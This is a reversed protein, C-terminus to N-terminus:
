KGGVMYLVISLITFIGNHLAHMFISTFINNTEVYMLALMIGLGAYPIIYLFDYINTFSFIIHVLGFSIGSIIVFLNKNSIIERFSKRFTLEEIIPATITTMILSIFPASKITEQVIEENNPNASPFLNGIMLNSFFMIIIGSLWYKFGISFYDNFNKKFDKLDKKLDKLYVLVYILILLISAAFSLLNYTSLSMTNIDINFLDAIIIPFFMQIIFFSFIVFTFKLYKNHFVKM